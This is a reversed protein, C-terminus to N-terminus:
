PREGLTLPLNIREGARIITLDITEGPSAEFVLFTNLDNFDQIPKGNIAVILDGGKGTSQDAAQLGALSAPSGPSVSVVYAGQTQDLGYVSLESLSVEADFGAGIYPYTYSGDQILSPIVKWVAAVPISFGVGSNEGTQSAIAANIGVVEGDLNLLPGGSNGPNIPADTQIVEPLSYTSGTTLTRQSPLSRGLGSVIGFSMSGQEGFPNGIAVVFQGVSLNNAEALQLPQIGEPLSDVKIVALDSDLDTGILDASARDGNSFVVEYNQASSVVHNNTVIHGASDYVFGSGSTGAPNLIYVVSPNVAQYVEILADQLGLDYDSTSVPLDVALIEADIDPETPVATPILENVRTQLEQQLELRIQDLRQNVTQDVIQDENITQSGASCAAMFVMLAVFLLLSLLTQRTKM